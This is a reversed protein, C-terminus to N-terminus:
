TSTQYNPPSVDDVSHLTISNRVLSGKGSLKSNYNSKQISRDMLTEEIKSLPRTEISAEQTDLKSGRAKKAAAQKTERTAVYWDQYLKELLQNAETDTLGKVRDHYMNCLRPVRLVSKAQKAVELYKDIRGRLIEVQSSAM